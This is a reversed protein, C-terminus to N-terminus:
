DSIILFNSTSEILVSVLVMYGFLVALTKTVAEAWGADYVRRMALVIYVLLYTLVVLQAVLALKNAGAIQELPLMLLFIIYAASHVHVAFILHDFYFRKRYVIKLLLAFVPLLLFMLRPLEDSMFQAQIQAERAVDQGRDLLVGQSALWAILVFFSVSIVLYLRLPPSFRRRRGALFESTLLGPRYFLMKITRAARGDLDFAERIVEAILDHLPRELDVNKQGCAPCYTGALAAECNECRAVRDGATEGSTETM